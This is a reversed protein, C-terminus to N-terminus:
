KEETKGKLILYYGKIIIFNVMSFILIEIYYTSFTLLYNEYFLDHIFILLMKLILIVCM